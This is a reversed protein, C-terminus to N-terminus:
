SKFGSRIDKTAESFVLERVEKNSILELPSDIKFTNVNFLHFGNREPYFRVAINKDHESMKVYNTIEVLDLNQIHEFRNYLNVQAQEITAGSVLTAITYTIGLAGITRGSFNAKFYKM